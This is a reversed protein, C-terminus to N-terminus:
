LCCCDVYVDFNKNKKTYKRIKVTSRTYVAGKL